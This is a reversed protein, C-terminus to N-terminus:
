SNPVHDEAALSDMRFDTRPDKALFKSLRDGAPLDM